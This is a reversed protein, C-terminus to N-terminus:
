DNHSLLEDKDELVEQLHDEPGQVVSALAPGDEMENFIREFKNETVDPLKSRKNDPYKPPPFIPDIAIQFAHDIMQPILSALYPSSLELCPNTNVEILWPQLQYDLMFDYGFIEFTSHKRTPDLKKFVSKVTDAGIKKMRPHIDKM